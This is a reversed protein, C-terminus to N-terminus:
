SDGLIIPWIELAKNIADRLNVLEEKEMLRINYRKGVKFQEDNDCAQDFMQDSDYQIVLRSGGDWNEHSIIIKITAACNDIFGKQVVAMLDTM